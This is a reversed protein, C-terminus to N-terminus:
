SFLIKFADKYEKVFHPTIGSKVEESLSDFEHRNKEPLILNFINDRKCGLVKEHLQYVKGISGDLTISGTMAFGEKVPLNLALSLLSTVMALGASSGQIAIELSPIHIHINNSFFFKNNPEIFTLFDRAFLYAIEASNEVEPYVNGTLLLPPGDSYRNIVAELTIVYGGLKSVSVANSIGVLGQYFVRPLKSSVRNVISEIEGYTPNYKENGELISKSLNVMLRNIGKELTRINETESSTSLYYKIIDDELGVQMNHLKYKPLIYNKIINYKEEQSYLPVNIVDYDKLIWDDLADNSEAIFIFISKSIDLPTKIYENFYYHRSNYLRRITNDTDIDDNLYNSFEIIIIPNLSEIKCIQSLFIGPSCSTGFIDEEKAENSLYICKRNLIKSICHALTRKGLGSPGVFVLPEKSIPENCLSELIKQKVDNLGHLNQDLIEKAKDIEFKDCSENNNWPISLITNVYKTTKIIDKSTYDGKEIKYMANQFEVKIHDPVNRLPNHNEHENFTCYRAKKINKLRLVLTQPRFLM